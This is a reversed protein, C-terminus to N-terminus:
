RRQNYKMEITVILYVINILFLKGTCLVFRRGTMSIMDGWDCKQGTGKQVGTSAMTNKRQTNTDM